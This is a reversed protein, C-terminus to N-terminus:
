KYRSPPQLAISNKGESYNQHLWCSTPQSLHEIRHCSHLSNYYKAFKTTCWFCRSPSTLGHIAPAGGGSNRSWYHRQQCTKLCRQHLQASFWQETIITVTPHPSTYLSPGGEMATSEVLPICQCAGSSEKQHDQQGQWILKRLLLTIKYTFFVANFNLSLSWLFHTHMSSLLFFVDTM